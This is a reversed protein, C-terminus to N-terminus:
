LDNAVIHAVVQDALIDEAYSDALRRGAGSGIEQRVDVPLRGWIEDLLEPTSKLPNVPVDAGGAEERDIEDIAAAVMERLSMTTM